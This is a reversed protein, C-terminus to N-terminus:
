AEDMSDLPPIPRGHPDKRPSELVDNLEEQLHRDIFHEVREAPDHLHDLPLEVNEELFLEWLRHSRVLSRARRRGDPTLILLSGRCDLLGQWWFGAVALWGVIGGGAARLSEGLGIGAGSTKGGAREEARYITAIIDEGSIRLTLALNHWVKSVVGYRPSFFVALLFLLGAVVSMMGAVSTDLLLAGIYGFLSSLFGVGVAVLMMSWLRDTLLHATAAPVILMAVVLIAGVAEFSTVTVGAVMAMLLYHVLTASIGMSTALDPDFSVLKLEKWFINVFLLVVILVSGMTGVAPPVEFGLFPQTTLPVADILGYLVCGPDLDVSHIASVMIVGIAFLSTFVVGLSADETVGGRHILQTLFATLVGIGMAGLFIPFSAIKGTLLFAIAIGPLIAHSIADGLLSMRRLLLYCGLIACSANSLTGVAITWWAALFDSTTLSM